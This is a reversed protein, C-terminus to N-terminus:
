DAERELFQEATMVIREDAEGISEADKGDYEFANLVTKICELRPAASITPM